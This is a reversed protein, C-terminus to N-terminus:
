VAADFRDLYYNAVVIDSKRGQTTVRGFNDLSLRESAKAKGAGRTLELTFASDTGASVKWTTDKQKASPPLLWAAGSLLRQADQPTKCEAGALKGDQGVLVARKQTESGKALGLQFLSGEPLQVAKEPLKPTAGAPDDFLAPLTDGFPIVKWPNGTVEIDTSGGFLAQTSAQARAIAAAETSTPTAQLAQQVANVQKVAFADPVRAPQQFMEAAATQSQRVPQPQHLPSAEAARQMEQILRVRDAPSKPAEQGIPATPKRENQNM